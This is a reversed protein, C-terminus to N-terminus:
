AERMFQSLERLFDYNDHKMHSKPSAIEIRSPRAIGTERRVPYSYHGNGDHVGVVECAQAVAIILCIQEKPAQDQLIVQEVRVIERGYELHRALVDRVVKLRSEVERSNAGIGVIERRDTVGIVLVGGRANALSAVDEAFTVKAREKEAGNEMRWMPLTEKFDWLQPETKHTEIAKHIFARWFADSSLLNREEVFTDIDLLVNRLSDRLCTFYTACEDFAMRSARRVVRPMPIEIERDMAETGEISSWIDAGVEYHAKDVTYLGSCYLGLVIETVRQIAEPELEGLSTTDVDVSRDGLRTSGWVRYAFLIKPALIDRASLWRVYELLVEVENDHKDALGCLIALLDEYTEPRSEKLVEAAKKLTQAADLAKETQQRLEDLNPEKKFVWWNIEDRGVERGFETQEYQVFRGTEGAKQWLTQSNMLTSARLIHWHMEGLKSAPPSALIEHGEKRDDRM